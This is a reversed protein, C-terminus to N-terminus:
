ASPSAEPSASPSTEPSTVPPTTPLTNLSPSPSGGSNNCAGVAFAAAVILM